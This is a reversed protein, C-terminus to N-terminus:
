PRRALWGPRTTLVYLDSRQGIGDPGESGILTDLTALDDSDLRDGLAERIRRLTARAYQGAATPLPSRLDIEFTQEAEIVFGAATLRAGWDSGLHPLRAAREDALAAHCRDELGPRGLGIDAPLFRPFADLEILALVGGPRLTSHIRALVADPDALHHLSSSAWALDAPGTTPWTTDLDAQVTTVQGALGTAEARESILKLFDPSLDVATVEADGFRRLLAFTGAGIGAGLDLLQRPAPEGAVEAIWGTVDDLYFSLVEADLALLEALDAEGHDHAGHEHAGHEHTAPHHDGHHHHQDSMSM